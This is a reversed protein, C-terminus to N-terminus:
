PAEEAEVEVEIRYDSLAEDLDYADVFDMRRDDATKSMLGADILNFVMEGVDGTADIGWLHFVVRAM